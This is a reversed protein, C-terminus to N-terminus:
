KKLKAFPSKETIEEENLEEITEEYEKRADETLVKMPKETIIEAFIYPKLDLTIGEIKHIEDDERTKSFYIETDFDLDVKVQKLTISCLMVLTTKIKLYFSFVDDSESYEFDGIVSTPLIDVLDNFDSTIFPHLDIVEEIDNDRYVKKMLEHITWKM